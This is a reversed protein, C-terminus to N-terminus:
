RIVESENEADMSLLLRALTDLTEVIPTVNQPM